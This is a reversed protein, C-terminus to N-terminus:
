VLTSSQETQGDSGGGTRGECSVRLGLEAISQESGALCPIHLCQLVEQSHWLIPAQWLVTLIPLRQIHGAGQQVLRHILLAAGQKM